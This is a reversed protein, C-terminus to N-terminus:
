NFLRKILFKLDTRYKSSNNLDYYRIDVSYRPHMDPNDNNILVSRHLTLPHFIVAESIKTQVTYIKKPDIKIQEAKFYGQGDVYSHKFLKSLHSKPVLEISNHKDSGNISFWLTAPNKNQLNKNKSLFWTGEDQHWNYIVRSQNPIRARFTCIEFKIPNSFIKKFSNKIAKSSVLLELEDSQNIDNMIDSWFEKNPINKFPLKIKESIPLSSPHDVLITKTKNYIRNQLNILIDGLEVHFEKIFGNNHFNNKQDM